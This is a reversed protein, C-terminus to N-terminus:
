EKGGFTYAWRWLKGGSPTVWLYLSGGDSLRYPTDSSKSKRVETGTLAM